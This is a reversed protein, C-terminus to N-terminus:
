VRFVSEAVPREGAHQLALLRPSHVEEMWLLRDGCGRLDRGPLFVADNRIWWDGDGSGGSGETACAADFNDGGVAGAPSDDSRLKLLAFGPGCERKRLLHQVRLIPLQM